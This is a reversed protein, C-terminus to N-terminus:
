QSKKPKFREREKRLYEALPELGLEARRKDVNVEDEIPKSFLKGDPTFDYNQGYRQKKGEALLIKDTLTAIQEGEVETPGLKTMLGLSLKQLPLDQSHSVILYAAMAAEPGVLTRGPWGYKVIIQKMRIRRIDDALQMRISIFLMVKKLEPDNNLKENLTKNDIGLLGHARRYTDYEGRINQDDTGLQLLEARLDPIRVEGIEQAPPKPLVVETQRRIYEALPQLGLEGRRKDVNVEDTLRKPVLKGNENTLVTGYVQVQNWEERLTVSDTLYAIHTNEVEGKPLLKMLELARRQFTLDSDYHQVLLWAARAAESGVLTRGPWGYKVLIQKLRLIRADEGEQLRLSIAQFGKKLKNDKNLKENLTKEDLDLLGHRKRYEDYEARVNQDDRLLQLLEARLKPEKEDGVEQVFSQARSLVACVFMVLVVLTLRGKM